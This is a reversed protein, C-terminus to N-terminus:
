KHQFLFRNVTTTKALSIFEDILVLFLLSCRGDKNLQGM